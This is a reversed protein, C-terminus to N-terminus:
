PFLANPPSPPYIWESAHLTYNHGNLVFTINGFDSNSSCDVSQSATPIKNTLTDFAWTPMAMYSTGSDVTLLCDKKTGNPGCFGTSKGDIIIDDLQVGFMYKYLIPHWVM